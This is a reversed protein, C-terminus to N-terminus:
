KCHIGHIKESKELGVQFFRLTKDLGATLLLPKDRDSGPHFQVAQVVSKSPDTQNADPCRVISLVNPPLRNRSSALLSGSKSFLKKAAEEEGDNGQAGTARAWDTRATAQTTDEYRKRLRRELEAGKLPTLEERSTRLKKLRNSSGALGVAVDDPDEWAPSDEDDPISRGDDGDEENEIDEKHADDKVALGGRDIQFSFDKENEEESGEVNGVHDNDHDNDNDDPEITPKGFVLATLQREELDEQAEKRARKQSKSSSGRPRKDVSQNTSVAMTLPSELNLSQDRKTM